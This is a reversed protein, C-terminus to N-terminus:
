VLKAKGSTNGKLSEPRPGYDFPGLDQRFDHTLPATKDLLQLFKELEKEDFIKEEDFDNDNVFEEQKFYEL